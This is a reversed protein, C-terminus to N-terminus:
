KRKSYLDYASTIRKSSVHTYIQTTAINSHGLMEQVARLSAGNELLHTAFCHRLTHPSIDTHIEARRAYEKVRLFFYQRSLPKGYRNLFVYNTNKGANKFRVDNIYKDLFELAFDGIPIRREKAGKGIITIIGKDFNVQGRKLSLLESVRLGSSYMVELMAKDRMEEPKDLHPSDLLAEVEEFNLMSPLRLSKKPSIVKPLPESFLKEQQLFLLFNKVTSLRRVITSSQLGLNSQNYIFEVLREGKIEKTDVIQNKFSLFQKLDDQYNKITVPSLGKEVFLYQYYRELASEIQM